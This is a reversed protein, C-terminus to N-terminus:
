DALLVPGAVDKTWMWAALLPRDHTRTAHLEMPRHWIVTGAKPIRFTGQGQRWETEGTLPWYLEPAKHYHDPYYRNTGLLLLGMRFDDGAFFGHSGIVECWCYNDSFGEGLIADTYTTTHHWAFHDDLSAITAALDASLLMTEAVCPALHRVAPLQSPPPEHFSGPDLPQAALRALAAGPDAGDSAAVGKEIISIFRRAARYVANSM